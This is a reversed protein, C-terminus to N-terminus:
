GGVRGAPFAYNGGPGYGAGHRLRKVCVRRLRLGNNGESSERVRHRYDVERTWMVDPEVWVECRDRSAPRVTARAGPARSPCDTNTNNAQGNGLARCDLQGACGIWEQDKV